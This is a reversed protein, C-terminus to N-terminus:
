RTPIVGPGTPTSGPALSATVVRGARTTPGGPQSVPTCPATVADAAVLGATM